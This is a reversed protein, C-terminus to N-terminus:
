LFVLDLCLKCDSKSYAELFWYEDLQEMKEIADNAALNTHIFIVLTQSDLAEPDELVEYEINSNPFFKGIKEPAEALIPKLSPYKDLFSTIEPSFEVDKETHYDAKLKIESSLISMSDRDIEEKRVKTM